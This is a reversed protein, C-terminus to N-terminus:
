VLSLSGRYWKVEQKGQRQGGGGCTNQPGSFDRIKSADKFSRTHVTSYIPRKEMELQATIVSLVRIYLLPLLIERQINSHTFVCLNSNWAQNRM